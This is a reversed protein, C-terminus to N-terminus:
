LSTQNMGPIGPSQSASTSPACHIGPWGPSCLSVKNWFWVLGFCSTTRRQADCSVCTTESCWGHLVTPSQSGSRQVENRTVGRNVHPLPQRTVMMLLQQTWVCAAARTLGQKWKEQASVSVSSGHWVTIIQQPTVTSSGCHSRWTVNGCFGFVGTIRWMRM